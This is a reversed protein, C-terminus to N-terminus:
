RSFQRVCEEPLIDWYLANAVAENYTADSGGNIAVATAKCFSTFDTYVSDRPNLAYASPNGAFEANALEEITFDSPDKNLDVLYKLYATRNGPMSYQITGLGFGKVRSSIDYVYKLDEKTWDTIHKGKCYITILKEFENDTVNHTKAYSEPGFYHDKFYRLPNDGGGEHGGLDGELMMRSSIACYAEWSEGSEIYVSRYLMIAALRKNDAVGCEKLLDDIAQEIESEPVVTGQTTDAAEFGDNLAAALEEPGVVTISAIGNDDKKILEATLQIQRPQVSLAKYKKLVMQASAALVGCLLLVIVLLGIILYLILKLRLPTPTAVKTNSM